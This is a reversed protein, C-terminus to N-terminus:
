DPWRGIYIEPKDDDAWHAEFLEWTWRRGEHEIHLFKRSNDVTVNYTAWGCLGDYFRRSDPNHETLYNVYRATILMLPGVENLAPLPRTHNIVGWKCVAGNDDTWRIEISM